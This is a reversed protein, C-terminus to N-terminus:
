GYETLQWAQAHLASGTAALHTNLNDMMLHIVGSEAYVEDVLWHMTQAFDLKNRQESM